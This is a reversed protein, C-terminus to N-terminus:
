RAFLIKDNVKQSITSPRFISWYTQRRCEWTPFLITGWAEIIGCHNCTVELITTIGAMIPSDSITKTMMVSHESKGDSRVSRVHCNEDDKEFSFDSTQILYSWKQPCCPCCRAWCSSLSNTIGENEISCTIRLHLQCTTLGSSTIGAM